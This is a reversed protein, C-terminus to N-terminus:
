VPMWGLSIQTVKVDTKELGVELVDVKGDADRSMVVAGVIELDDGEAAKLADFDARATTADAYSAVYLALNDGTM